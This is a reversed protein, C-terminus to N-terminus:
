QLDTKILKGIYEKAKDYNWAHISCGYKTSSENAFLDEASQKVDTDAWDITIVRKRWGIKIHGISTTVIFWPYYHLGYDKPWYENPIERVYIVSPFLALINVRENKIAQITEPNITEDHFQIAGVLGKCFNYCMQEEEETLKRDLSLLVKVGIKGNTEISQALVYENNM